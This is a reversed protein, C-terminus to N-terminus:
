ARGPGRRLKRFFSSVIEKHERYHRKLLLELGGLTEEELLKDIEFVKKGLQRGYKDIVTPVAVKHKEAVLNTAQTRPQGGVRVLYIVQLTQELAKPISSPFEPIGESPKKETEGTGELQKRIWREREEPSLRALFRRITELDDLEKQQKKEEILDKHRTRLEELKERLEDLKSECKDWIEGYEKVTDDKRTVVANNYKERAEDRQWKTDIIEKQVIEIQQALHTIEKEYNMHNVM